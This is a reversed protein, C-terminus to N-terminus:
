LERGRRHTAEAGAPRPEAPIPGAELPLRGRILVARDHVAVHREEPEVDPLVRVVEVVLIATGAVDRGEPADDVPVLDATAGVAGTRALAPFVHTPDKANGRPPHFVQGRIGWVSALRPGYDLRHIDCQPDGQGRSGSRRADGAHGHLRGAIALKERA